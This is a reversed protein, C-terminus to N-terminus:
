VDITEGNLSNVLLWRDDAIYVGKDIKELYDITEEVSDFMEEHSFIGFLWGPAHEKGGEIILLVPKKQLSAM